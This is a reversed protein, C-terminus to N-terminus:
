YERSSQDLLLPCIAFRWRSGRVERGVGWCGGGRMRAAEARFHRVRREAILRGIDILLPTQQNRDSRARYGRLWRGERAEVARTPRM